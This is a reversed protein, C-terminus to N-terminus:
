IGNGSFFLGLGVFPMLDTHRAIYGEIRNQIKRYRAGAEFFLIGEASTYQLRADAPLGAYLQYDDKSAYLFVTSFGTGLCLRVKWGALPCVEFNVSPEIIRSQTHPLLPFLLKTEGQTYFTDYLISFRHMFETNLLKIPGHFTRSFSFMHGLHTADRSLNGESLVYGARQSITTDGQAASSFQSYSAVCTAFFAYISNKQIHHTKFSAKSFM